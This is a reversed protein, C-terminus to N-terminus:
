LCSAQVAVTGIITSVITVAIQLVKKVTTWKIKCKMRLVKKFPKVFVLPPEPCVPRM